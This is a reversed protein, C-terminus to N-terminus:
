PLFSLAYKNCLYGLVRWINATSLASDYILFEAIDGTFWLSAGGRSGLYIVRNAFTGAANNSDASRSVTGGGNIRLTAESSALAKDMTAHIARFGGDITLSNAANSTGVDGKCAVTPVGAVAESHLLLWSDTYSNFNESQEAIIALTTASAKTVAFITLASTGDLDIASASQLWDDTGDFRVVPKSNVVADVWTPKNGATSQSFNAGSGNNTWTTVPSASLSDAKLWVALGSIESPSFTGGGAGGLGFGVMGM